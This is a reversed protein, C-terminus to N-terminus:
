FELETQFFEKETIITLGEVENDIDNFPMDGDDWGDFIQGNLEQITEVPLRQSDVPYFIEM